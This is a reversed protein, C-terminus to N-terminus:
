SDEPAMFYKSFEKTSSRSAAESSSLEFSNTLLIDASCTNEATRSPCILALQGVSEQWDEETEQLLSWFM